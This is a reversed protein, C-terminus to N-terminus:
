VIMMRRGLITAQRPSPMMGAADIALALEIVIRALGPM